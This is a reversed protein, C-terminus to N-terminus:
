PGVKQLNYFRYINTAAQSDLFPLVGYQNTVVALNVWNTFDRTARVSYFDGVPGAFLMKFGGSAVLDPRAVPEGPLHVLPGALNWPGSLPTINGFTVNDFTATALSGFNHATVALGVELSSNMDITTFWVYEWNMGNTSYHGVFTNGLRTLRLWASNTGNYNNEISNSNPVSRRRFAVKRSANLSLFVHRSGPALDERMMVGAESLGNVQQIQVVRAVIEGDGVMSRHTFHFGDASGEIDEGAGRITFVGNTNVTSGTAGGSGVDVGVLLGPNPVVTLTAVASTSYCTSNSVSGYFKAGNDGPYVASAFGYTSSSAGPIQTYSAGGNDSRFWRLVQPTGTAALSFSVAGGEPVTLNTPSATIAVCTGGGSGVVNAIAFNDIQNIADNNAQNNVDVFLLYNTTGGLWSIGSVSFTILQNTLYNAGRDGHSVWNGAAGDLNHYVRHGQTIEPTGPTGGGNPGGTTTNGGADTLTYTVDFSAITGGSNNLLTAMLFTAANGTPRTQLFQGITSYQALTSTNLPLAGSNAALATAITSAANTPGNVGADLGGVAAANGYSTGLGILSRTTWQDIPPPGDFPQNTSGTSTVLIQSQVTGVVCLFAGLAFTQKFLRVALSRRAVCNNQIWSRPQTKM